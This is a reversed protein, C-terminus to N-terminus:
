RLNTWNRAVDLNINLESPVRLKWGPLEGLLSKLEDIKGPNTTALLLQSKAFHAIM